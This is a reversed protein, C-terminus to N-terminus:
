RSRNVRREELAAAVLYGAGGAIALVAYMGNLGPFVAAGGVLALYCGLTYQHPDRGIAGGMLYLMGVILASGTAWMVTGVRHDGTHAELSTILLFLAGFGVVWGAGLMMGPVAAAGKVHKQTRATLVGTVALAIVLGMGLLASPLFGPLDLVPDSGSDLALAGYGVLWASGFALYSYRNDPVPPQHPGAAAVDHRRTHIATSM